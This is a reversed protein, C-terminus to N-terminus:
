VQAAYRRGPLFKGFLGHNIRRNDVGYLQKLIGM